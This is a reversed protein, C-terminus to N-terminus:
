EESLCCVSSVSGKLFSLGSLCFLGFLRFLGLVFRVLPHALEVLCKFFDLLIADRSAFRLLQRLLRRRRNLLRFGFGIAPGVHLHRPFHLQRGHVLHEHGVALRAGDGGLLEAFQARLQQALSGEGGLVIMTVLAVSVSPLVSTDVL